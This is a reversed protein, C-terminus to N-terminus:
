KKVIQKATHNLRAKLNSVAKNVSDIIFGKRPARSVRVFSRVPEIRDARAGPSAEHLQIYEIPIIHPRFGTEQAIAYPVGSIRILNKDKMYVPKINRILHGTRRPARALMALIIERSISNRLRAVEIPMRVKCRDLYRSTEKIGKIQVDVIVM